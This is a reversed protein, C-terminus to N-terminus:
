SAKFRNVQDGPTAGSDKAELTLVIKETVSAPKGPTVKGLANTRSKTEENFICSEDVQFRMLQVDEITTQQLANLVTGNLFRSKALQRLATLKQHVDTLKRVNELVVQYENTQMSLQNELRNVDRKAIMASLQLSSSWVLIIIVLIIATLIARKVPDRRRLEELAQEEALLNIRIPM